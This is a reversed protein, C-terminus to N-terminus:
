FPTWVIMVRTYTTEKMPATCKYKVQIVHSGMYQPLLHPKGHQQVLPTPLLIPTTLGPAQSTFSYSQQVTHMTPAEPPM